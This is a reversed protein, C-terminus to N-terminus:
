PSTNRTAGHIVCHIFHLKTVVERSLVFPYFDPQGMSRSMENMVATLGVWDNVLALFPPGEEGIDAKWLVDADFPETELGIQTLDIGFSAATDATDVMHLYHAWTEAWDEWPHTSAYASVFHVGWDLPAGNQYHAKVAADYDQREDGFLARYPELWSTHDVLRDWYYHGVEHRFHGLLTRYPEGMSKRTRERTPDDAEELNITILGCDHGTLVRPESPQSRLFDYALGREPDEGVKSAVPLKLAILQSVLRRKATEIRRWLEQNELNSLDPITRNLRCAQCLTVGKAAQSQPILWNCEAASAFNACRVYREAQGQPANAPVFLKPEQGPDLPIVRAQTPEYGLPTQCALCVSNRFFVPRGCRCRYARSSVPEHANPSQSPHAQLNDNM